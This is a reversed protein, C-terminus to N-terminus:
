VLPWHLVLFLKAQVTPLSQTLPVHLLLTHTAVHGGLEARSALPLQMHRALVNEDVLPWGGHVAHGAPAVAPKPAVAHEHGAGKTQLAVVCVHAHGDPVVSIPPDHRRNAPRGHEVPVCHTDPRHALKPEVVPPLALTHTADHGNGCDVGVAPPLHWHAAPAYPGPPTEGHTMHPPPEVEVAPEDAHVHGAPAVHDNAALAQMQSSGSLTSTCPKHRLFLPAAHADLLSQTLPVHAPPWHKLAHGVPEELTPPTQWHLGLKQLGVPSGGPHV